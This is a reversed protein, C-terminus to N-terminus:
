PKTRVPAFKNFWRNGVGCGVKVAGKETDRFIPFSKVYGCKHALERQTKAYEVCGYQDIWAYTTKM